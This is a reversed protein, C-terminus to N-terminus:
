FLLLFLLQKNESLYKKSEDPSELVVVPDLKWKRQLQIRGALSGLRPTEVTRASPSASEAEAHRPKQVARPPTSSSSFHTNLLLSSPYEQQERGAGVDCM